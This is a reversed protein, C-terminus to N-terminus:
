ALSQLESTHEESRPADRREQGQNAQNQCPNIVHLATAGAMKSRRMPFSGNRPADDAQERAPQHQPWRHRPAPVSRLEKCSNKHQATQVSQVTRQPWFARKKQQADSEVM